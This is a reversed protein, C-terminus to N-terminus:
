VDRRGKPLSKTILKREHRLADHLIQVLSRPYEGHKRLRDWEMVRDSLARARQYTRDQKM